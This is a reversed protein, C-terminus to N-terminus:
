AMSASPLGLVVRYAQIYDRRFGDVCGWLYLRFKRYQALGWRKEIEERAADFREAWHRATLGYNHRDEHVTDLQFPSAAVAKLYDHLCMPSGNGPFVHRRFFASLDYKKRAASADLYVKGGPKLLSRYLGLTDPYDPLHETVGLIVIADYKRDPRHEALHEYRVSCPLKEREILGQLFKESARSITLSTVNVDKRGAYETFAGWGGGVDLVRDGPRVEISDVAFELKRSMGDELPEDDAAFVGHSYCRHRRDLFYLFFDPDADYHASINKQDSKIRGWLAPGLMHWAAVLPHTDAFFDRMRLTSELDGEIELAGNLYAEGILLADLSALASLASEDRAEFTFAPEGEGLRHEAGSSDRIAFPIPTIDRFFTSYRRDYKSAVRSLGTSM